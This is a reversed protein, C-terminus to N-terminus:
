RDALVRRLQADIFATDADNGGGGAAHGFISEIVCLQGNALQAVERVSDEPPFYLDTRSPMVLTRARISRLAAADDGAFPATDGVNAGRWTKLMAHLDHADAAAFSAVYREAVFAERSSFGLERWREERYFTQSLGWGAWVRGVAENGAGLLTAEIGDLFVINHEATRASGCIPVCREVLDPASVAWQYAQQAGMSFGVALPIKTAGVHGLVLQKQAEINDAISVVPFDAGTQGPAANSPSSSLGAGFLNPCVIFSRAPDLAKGPGILYRNDEHTGGYATPFVIVNDRRASLSGHTAYVLKADRLTEGSRLRFDGLAFTQADGDASM